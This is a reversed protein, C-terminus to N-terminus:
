HSLFWSIPMLACFENVTSVVRRVRAFLVSILHLLFCQAQQPHKWIQRMSKRWAVSLEELKPNDLLWLERGYYSTCYSQFLKHQVLSDLSRFYSITNFNNRGKTIDEDDSLESNILHGLHCFSNVCETPKQWHLVRLRAARRISRSTQLFSRGSM